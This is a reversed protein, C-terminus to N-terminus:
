QHILGHLTSDLRRRVHASACVFNLHSRKDEDQENGEGLSRAYAMKAEPCYYTAACCCQVVWAGFPNTCAWQQVGASTAVETNEVSNGEKAMIQERTLYQRLQKAGSKCAAQADLVCRTMMHVNPWSPCARTWKKNISRCTAAGSQPQHRPSDMNKSGQLM